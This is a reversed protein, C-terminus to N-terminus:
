TSLRLISRVDGPRSDPRTMAVPVPIVPVSRRVSKQRAKINKARARHVKDRFIAKAFTDRYVRLTAGPVKALDKRICYFILLNVIYIYIYIAIISFSYFVRYISSFRNRARTECRWEERHEILPLFVVLTLSVYRGRSNQGLYSLESTRWRRQDRGIGLDPVRDMKETRGVRIAHWETQYSEGGLRLTRERRSAAQLVRDEREISRCATTGMNGIHLDPQDSTRKCQSASGRPSYLVWNYPPFLPFFSFTTPFYRRDDTM